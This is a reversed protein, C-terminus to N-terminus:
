DTLRRGAGEFAGASMSPRPTLGPANSDSTPATRPTSGGGGGATAGTEAPLSRTKGGLTLHTVPTTAAEKKAQLSRARALRARRAAALDSMSNGEGAPTASGSGGGGGGNGFGQSSTVVAGDALKRGSISTAIAPVAAEAAIASAKKVKRKKTKGSATKGVVIEYQDEEAQKAAELAKQAAYKAREESSDYDLPPAFEVKIDTEVISM